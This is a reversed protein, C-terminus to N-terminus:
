YHSGVRPNWLFIYYISLLLAAMTVSSMYVMVSLLRALKKMFKSKKGDEKEGAEVNTQASESVDNPTSEM